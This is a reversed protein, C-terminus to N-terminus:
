HWKRFETWTTSLVLLSQQKQMPINIRLFLMFFEYSHSISSYFLFHVLISFNKPVISIAQQSQSNSILNAFTILIEYRLEEEIFQIYVVVKALMESFSKLKLLCCQACNTTANWLKMTSKKLCQVSFELFKFKILYLLQLEKMEMWCDYIKFHKDIEATSILKRM